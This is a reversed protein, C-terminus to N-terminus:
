EEEKSAVKAVAGVKDKEELRILRVGQTNRGITNMAGVATRIIIGQKSMLMIEDSDTVTLIGVVAGNRDSTKINIIGKGGRSQIRYEKFETRKGYGNETVTLITAKEDVIAM